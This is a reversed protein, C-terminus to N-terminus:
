SVAMSAPAVALDQAAAHDAGVRAVHDALDGQGDLHTRVSDVDALGDVRMWRQALDMPMAASTACPLQV